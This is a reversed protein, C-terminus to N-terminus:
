AAAHHIPYRQEPIDRFVVQGNVLHELLESASVDYSEYYRRDKPQIKSGLLEKVSKLKLFEPPLQDITTMDQGLARALELKYTENEQALFVCSLMICRIIYIKTNTDESAILSYDEAFMEFHQRISELEDNM